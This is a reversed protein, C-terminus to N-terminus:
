QEAEYEFIEYSREVMFGLKRAVRASAHNDLDCSWYAHYGEKELTEILYAVTIPAYGLGRYPEHTIAGIEAYPSGLASAYTEVIIEDGHMLCMGLGYHLFNELSGLYFEMDERWLCRELLDHDIKRIECGAPLKERLEVLLQSNPDYEYFELRPAVKYGRPAAPDDQDRVLWIPRYRRFFEIAGGLFSQSIGRSAYTLVAQTCLVCGAPHDLDDVVARGQHEGKFCAWLAPNNPVHPDFLGPLAPHSVPCEILSPMTEAM